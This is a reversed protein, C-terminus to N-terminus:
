SDTGAAPCEYEDQVVLLFAVINLLPILDLVQETHLIFDVFVIFFSLDLTDIEFVLKFILRPLFYLKFILLLVTPSLTFSHDDDFLM